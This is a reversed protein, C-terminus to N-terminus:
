YNIIYFLLGLQFQSYICTLSYEDYVDRWSVINFFIIDDIMNKEKQYEMIKLNDNSNNDNEEKKSSIHINKREKEIKILQKKILLRKKIWEGEVEVNRLSFPKTL